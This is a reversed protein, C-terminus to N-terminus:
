QGFYDHVSPPELGFYKSTNNEYLCTIANHLLAGVIYMKGVSSMGIKLNKKYDLFKFDNVIDGFVWEVAVRVSSMDKNYQQMAPTLAGRQFPTQLHVDLPYALDGYVSMPQGTPSFARRRLVRLLNSDDLM